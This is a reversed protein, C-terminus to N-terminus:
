ERIGLFQAAYRKDASLRSRFGASQRLHRMTLHRSCRLGPDYMGFVQTASRLLWDDGYWIKLGDPIARYTGKLMFIASGFGPYQQGISVSLDFTLPLLSVPCGSSLNELSSDSEPLLGAIEGVCWSRREMEALAASSLAIDDNLIAITVDGDDVCAAGLNWSPNVYLNAEQPLLLLRDDTALGDVAPPRQTPANDILLVREVFPLRLYEQLVEPLEQPCWLTPIILQM